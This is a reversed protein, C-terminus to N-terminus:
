ERETRRWICLRHFRGYQREQRQQRQRRHHLRQCRGRGRIRDPGKSRAQEDEIRQNRVVARRAWLNVGSFPAVAAM